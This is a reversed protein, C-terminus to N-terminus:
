TCENGNLKSYFKISATVGDVLVRKQVTRQREHCKEIKIKFHWEFLNMISNIIKFFITYFTYKNLAAIAMPEQENDAQTTGLYQWAQSVFKILTLGFHMHM